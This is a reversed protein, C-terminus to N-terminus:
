RTSYFSIPFRSTMTVYITYKLKYSYLSCASRIFNLYNLSVYHLEKKHNKTKLVVKNSVMVHYSKHKEIWQISTVHDKPKEVDPPGHPGNMRFVALTHVIVKFCIFFIFITNSSHVHDFIVSNENLDYWM